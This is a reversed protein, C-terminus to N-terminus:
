CAPHLALRVGKVGPVLLRAVEIPRRAKLRALAPRVDWVVLVDLEQLHAPNAVGIRRSGSAVRSIGGISM